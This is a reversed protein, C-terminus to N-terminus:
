ITYYMPLMDTDISIHGGDSIPLENSEVCQQHMMTNAWIVMSAIDGPICWCPGYIQTNESIAAISLLGTSMGVRELWFSESM